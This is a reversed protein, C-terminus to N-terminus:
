NDWGSWGYSDSEADYLGVVSLTSQINDEHYEYLADGWSMNFWGQSSHMGLMAGTGEVAGVGIDWVAVGGDGWWRLDTGAPGSDWATALDSLDDEYCHYSVDDDLEGDNPM